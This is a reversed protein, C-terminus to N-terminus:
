MRPSHNTGAPVSLAGGGGSLSLQFRMDGVPTGACCGGGCLIFFTKLAELVKWIWGWSGYLYDMMLCDLPFYHSAFCFSTSLDIFYFKFFLCMMMVSFIFTQHEWTNSLSLCISSIFIPSCMICFKPLPFKDSEGTIQRYLFCLFSDPCHKCSFCLPLLSVERLLPIFWSSELWYWLPFFYILDPGAEVTYYQFSFYLALHYLLNDKVYM